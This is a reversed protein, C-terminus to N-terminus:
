EEVVSNAYAIWRYIWRLWYHLQPPTARLVRAGDLNVRGLEPTAKAKTLRPPPRLFAARWEPSPVASLM